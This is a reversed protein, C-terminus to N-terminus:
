KTTATGLSQIGITVGAWFTVGGLAALSLWKAIHKTNDAKIATNEEKPTECFLNKCGLTYLYAGGLALGTGSAAYVLSKSIEKALLAIAEDDVNFIAAQSVPTYLAFAIIFIRLSKM